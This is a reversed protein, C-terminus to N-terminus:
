VPKPGRVAKARHALVVATMGTQLALSLAMLLVYGEIPADKAVGYVVMGILWLLPLCGLAAFVRLQRVGPLTLACLTLLSQGLIAIAILDLRSYGHKLILAMTGFWLGYASTFMCLGALLRESRSFRHVGLSLAHRLYWLNARFRGRRASVDAYGEFLDGAIPDRDRDYLSLLVLQELWRPPTPTTM